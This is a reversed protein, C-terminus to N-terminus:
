DRSVPRNPDRGWEEWSADYLAVDELGALNMAFLLASASVGVGCYTIARSEPRVGASSLIKRLDAPDKMTLDERFLSAAPVNRAGPVHGTRFEGRPTRAIGDPGAAVPGTEFWVFQGRFQEPPRSDLLLTEPDQVAVAVEDATAVLGLPARPTWRVSRPISPDATLPRGEAVWKDLGGDLVSVNDHGHMRCAWWLRHPGSGLQDSYAVVRSEDGIGRAEMVRGFQEPGALVFAVAGGSDVLDTSWDLYVAGQIHGQEYLLRASGDGRWRMDVVVLDPDDLHDALWDSSVLVPV